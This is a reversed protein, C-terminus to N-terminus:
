EKEMELQLTTQCQMCTNSENGALGNQLLELYQALCPEFCLGYREDTQMQKTYKMCITSFRMAITVADTLSHDQMLAGLLASAFLDGSGHYAYPLYPESLYVISGNDYVACHIYKTDKMMGKLVIKAGTVEHLSELLEQIEETSYPASHYPRQLLSYAESMNPTIIDATQCLSLMASPLDKPLSAYIIGHDGMVPDVLRVAKPYQQFLTHIEEIQALESVYGSYLADMPLSLTQWHNRIQKMEEHLPLIFPKGLGGTHTSLLSTPLPIASIGACSLVPLTITLSCKGFCSLDQICLIQKM